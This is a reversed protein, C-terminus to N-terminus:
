SMICYGGVYNATHELIDHQDPQDPQEQVNYSSVNKFSLIWSISTAGLVIRTFSPSMTIIIVQM